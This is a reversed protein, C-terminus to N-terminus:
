LKIKSELYFFVGENMLDTFLSYDWYGLDFIILRGRLMKLPPFINREHCTAETLCFWEGIGSLLNMCLHWKIAAPVVNTRPAPFDKRAKNPLSVSSADLLYIGTVGLKELIGENIGFNGALGAVLGRITQTLFGTLRKSGLRQWYSSRAIGEGLLAMAQRRLDAITRTKTDSVMATILAILFAQPGIKAREDIEPIALFVQRIRPLITADM